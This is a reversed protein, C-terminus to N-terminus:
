RARMARMCACGTAGKMISPTMSLRAMGNVFPECGIFGTEAQRDLQHLLHEGGGFGIELALRSVPAAFLNEAAAPNRFTWRM